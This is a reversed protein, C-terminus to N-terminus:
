KLRETDCFSNSRFNNWCVQVFSISRTSEVNPLAEAQQQPKPQSRTTVRNLLDKTESVLESGGDEKEGGQEMRRGNNNVLNFWEDLPVAFTSLSTDLEKQLVDGCFLMYLAAFIEGTDGKGPLCLKTTFAETAQKTWFKKEKGKLEGDTWNEDMFRMALTACLPDPMFTVGTFPTSGNGNQQRFDVLCAYGSSVLDSLIRQYSDVVGM